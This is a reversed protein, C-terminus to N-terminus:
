RIAVANSSTNTNKNAFTYHNVFHVTTAPVLAMESASQMKSKPRVVLDLLDFDTPGISFDFLKTCIM